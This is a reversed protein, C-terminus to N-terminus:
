ILITVITTILATSSDDLVRITLRVIHGCVFLEYILYVIDGCIGRINMLQLRELFRLLKQQLFPFGWFVLHPM